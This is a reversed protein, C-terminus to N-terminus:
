TFFYYSYSFVWCSAKPILSRSWLVRYRLLIYHLQLKSFGYDLPELPFSYGLLSSLVVSQLFLKLVVRPHLNLTQDILVIPSLLNQMFFVSLRLLYAISSIPLIDLQHSLRLPSQFLVILFFSPSQLTHLFLLVGFKQLNKLVVPM